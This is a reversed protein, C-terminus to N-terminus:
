EGVKKVVIISPKVVRKTGNTRFAGYGNEVVMAVTMEESEIETKEYSKIAYSDTELETLKAGITIKMEYLGFESFLDGIEDNLFGIAADAEIRKAALEVELKKLFSHVKALKNTLKDKETAAAGNRLLQLEDEKIKLETKLIHVAEANQRLLDAVEKMTAQVVMSSHKVQKETQTTLEVVQSPVIAMMGSDVVRRWKLITILAFLVGFNIALLVMMASFLQWPKIDIAHTSEDGTLVFAGSVAIAILGLLVAYPLVKRKLPNLM